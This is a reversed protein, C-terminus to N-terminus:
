QPVATGTMAPDLLDGINNVTTDRTGLQGTKGGLWNWEIFKVISSHEMQVHSVYNKKAFPGLAMFPVRTGNPKGDAAVTTPPPVHDFYGGGEDYALLVLTDSGYQSSMVAEAVTTAFKVGDSLKTKAGPHETHYGIPKVFSVQPLTGGVLDVVLGLYDRMYQPNDLFPKYYMFPVDSPDYTCPYFPQHAGCDDPPDPCRNDNTISDVMAKYGESYWAWTAGQAVLLDGITPDTWQMNKTAVGCRATQGGPGYDNDKFVFGARALFMDNASTQGVVSQFFRDAIAYQGAYNWYPMVVDTAVAFNRPSGCFTSTVFKDMKGGDIEDTECESTHNPDWGGMETDTLALPAAGSPEKDPAAECCTPGATCAPNSGPAAKCYRGFHNDFTHNEQVIVVLHKINSSAPSLEVPKTGGCAVLAAALLAISPAKLRM